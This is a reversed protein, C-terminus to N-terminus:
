EVPSQAIVEGTLDLKIFKGFKQFEKIIPFYVCNTGKLIIIQKKIGLNLDVSAMKFFM